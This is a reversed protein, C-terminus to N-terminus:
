HLKINEKNQICLKNIIRNLKSNLIKRIKHFEDKKFKASNPVIFIGGGNSSVNDQLHMGLTFM